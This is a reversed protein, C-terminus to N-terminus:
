FAKQLWKHSNKEAVISTSDGTRGLVRFFCRPFVCWRPGFQYNSQLEQFFYTTRESISSRVHHARINTDAHPANRVPLFILSSQPFLGFFVDPEESWGIIRKETWQMKQAEDCVNGKLRALCLQLTLSLSHHDYCHKKTVCSAGQLPHCLLRICGYSSSRVQYLKIGYRLAFFFDITYIYGRRSLSYVILVGGLFIKSSFLVGDDDRGALPPRQLLVVWGSFFVSWVLVMM